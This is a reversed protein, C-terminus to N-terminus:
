SQGSASLYAQFTESSSALKQFNGQHIVKGQHLEFICDCKEVTSLRHAILIITLEGSLGEIAAM